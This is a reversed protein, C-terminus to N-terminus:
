VSSANFTYTLLLEDDTVVSKSSGFRAASFLTGSTGSKTADSILFAGYITKTANFVFSARSASNTTSQATSAAEAYEPRTASTYATSETSASTITAANVTAVPTYNGEFIGVYWTGIQTLGNFMVNLLANLGQNVVINHDEWEDIIRDGRKIVGHYVGGVAIRHDQVLIGGETVKYDLEHM